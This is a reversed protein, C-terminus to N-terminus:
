SRSEKGVMFERNWGSVLVECQKLTNPYGHIEEREKLFSIYLFVGLQDPIAPKTNTFRSMAKKSRNGIPKVRQGVELSEIDGKLRKFSTRNQRVGHQLIKFFTM